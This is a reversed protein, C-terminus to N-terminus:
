AADVPLMVGTIALRLRRRRPTSRRRSRCRPADGDLLSLTAGTRAFRRACAEGLDSAGGTLVVHRATM